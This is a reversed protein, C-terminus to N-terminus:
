SVNDGLTEIYRFDNQKLTERLRKIEAKAEPNKASDEGRKLHYAGRWMWPGWYAKGRQHAARAARAYLQLLVRLLSRDVDLDEILHVLAEQERRVDDFDEWPITVGLWRFADKHHGDEGPREYDKAAELADAADSAAQYLPYKGGHLTLGGSIHFAPNGAAFRTLDRRLTDALRPLAHWAGVVFLDDGGSYIAYVKDPGQANIERCRQGVWGEFFLSIAFSLSAVRSLTGQGAMGWRFLDGLDDVDMRLVGLRRIGSSADQLDEFTAVADDKRPTVNVTYRMGPAVPCGCQAAIRGAIGAVDPLDRTALLRARRVDDPLRLVARGDEATIGVAMGFARLAERYGARRADQPEVEGLLVAGADRLDTGLDELSRCLACIRREEPTGEREVQVPGDYHCVQCEGEEGGGQGRPGFVEETLVEADDLEAFRQRKVANMDQSVAHWKDSFRERDFDEASVPTAGLAVYLDGGHHDLLKHSVDARLAELRGEAALPALVYFHGGGAYLLNTIPLDLQRLLYHAVAQTLLELYFSRGRLGKAAGRATITYIFDQVGSVDGGVLLVLPKSRKREERALLVDLREEDVDALCAALAATTRSHDFLSVDPLARYYAGPVCWAYRRLADYLGALYTALDDAPLAEVAAVLGKWLAEYAATEAEQPMPDQPFLADESLALPKLPWFKGEPREDGQGVRVRSLVSVLQRERSKEAEEREAASLRDALAVIKTARGQLPKDHHGMVPYLHERWREPVYASVFEGGLETHTGSRWKARQALKGVDHLLAALALQHAEQTRLSDDSM